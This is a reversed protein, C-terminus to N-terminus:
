RPQALNLENNLSLWKVISCAFSFCGGMPIVGGDTEFETLKGCISETRWKGSKIECNELAALHFCLNLSQFTSDMSWIGNEM